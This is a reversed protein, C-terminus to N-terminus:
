CATVKSCETGSSPRQHHDFRLLLDFMALHSIIFNTEFLISGVQHVNERIVDCNINKFLYLIVMQVSKRGKISFNTSFGFIISCFIKVTSCTM